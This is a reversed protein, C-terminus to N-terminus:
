GEQGQGPVQNAIMVIAADTGGIAYGLGFVTAMYAQAQLKNAGVLRESEDVAQGGFEKGERSAAQLADAGVEKMKEVAEALKQQLEEFFRDIAKGIDEGIGEPNSQSRPAAVQSAADAHMLVAGDLAGALMGAALANLALMRCDEATQPVEALGTLDAKFTTKVESSIQKLQERAAPDQQMAEKSAILLADVAQYVEEATPPQPAPPTPPAPPQENLYIRPNISLSTM